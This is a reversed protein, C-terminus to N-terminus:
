KGSGVRKLTILSQSDHVWIAVAAAAQDKPLDADTNPAKAPAKAADDWIWVNCNVKIGCASRGNTRLAQQELNPACVMIVVADSRSTITCPSATATAQAIAAPVAIAGLGLALFGHLRKVM